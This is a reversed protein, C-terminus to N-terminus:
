SLRGTLSSTLFKSTAEPLAFVQVCDDQNREQFMIAKKTQANIDQAFGELYFNDRDLM